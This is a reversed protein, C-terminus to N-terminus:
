TRPWRKANAVSDPKYTRGFLM